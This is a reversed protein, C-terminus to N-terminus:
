DKSKIVLLYGKEIKIEVREQDFVNSTGYPDGIEMVAEDL